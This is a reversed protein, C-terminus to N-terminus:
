AHLAAAAAAAESYAASHRGADATSPEVYMTHTSHRCQDTQQQLKSNATTRQTCEHLHKAPRRSGGSHVCQVPAVMQIMDYLSTSYSPLLLIMDCSQRVQQPLLSAGLVLKLNGVLTQCVALQCCQQMPGPRHPQTRPCSKLQTSCVWQCHSICKARPKLCVFNHQMTHWSAPARM